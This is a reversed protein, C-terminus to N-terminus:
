GTSWADWEAFLGLTEAIGRITRRREPTGECSRSLPAAAAHAFSVREPQKRCGGPARSNIRRDTPAPRASLRSNPRQVRPGLIRRRM